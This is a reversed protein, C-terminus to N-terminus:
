SSSRRLQRKYVDLHTYSVPISINTNKRKHVPSKAELRNTLFGVFEAIRWQTYNVDVFHKHTQILNIKIEKVNPTM